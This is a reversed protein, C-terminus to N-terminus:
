IDDRENGGGQDKEDEWLTVGEVDQYIKWILM